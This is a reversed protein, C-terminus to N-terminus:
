TGVFNTTPAATTHAQFTRITNWASYCTLVHRVDAGIRDEVRNEDRKRANEREKASVLGRVFYLSQQRERVPPPALRTLPAGM